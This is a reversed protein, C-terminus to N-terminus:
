YRSLFSDGSGSVDFLGFLTPVLKYIELQAIPKGMCSRTGYGFAIDAQRMRKIRAQFDGHSEEDSKLWRDPNFTHADRGFVEENQNITWGNMSVITGPKLRRGDPLTLGAPSVVRELLISTPPHVRLAEKFIADLYVLSQADKWSVPFKLKADDIEEQLRAQTHLNKSLYYVISRLTISVTDSGALIITMIYGVVAHDLIQEPNARKVELIRAVFDQRESGIEAREDIMRDRFLTGARASFPNGGASFWRLLPNKRLFKDLSPM